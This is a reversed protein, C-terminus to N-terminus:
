IGWILFLLSTMFFEKFITNVHNQQKKATKTKKVKDKTAM